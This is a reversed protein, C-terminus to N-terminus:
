AAVVATQRVTLSGRGDATATSAAMDMGATPNAAVGSSATAIQNMAIVAHEPWATGVAAFGQLSLAALSLLCIAYRFLRVYRFLRLM